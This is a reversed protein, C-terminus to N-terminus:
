VGNFELKMLKKSAFHLFLLVCITVSGLIALMVGIQYRIALDPAVGALIQGTMMGPLMVIGMSLMSTITPLIATTLAADVSQKVAAGGSAGLMLSQEIRARSQGFDKLLANMSLAVGTMSNGVVMGAISVFYRTDYWPQVGVVLWLFYLMVVSCGACMAITVPRRLLTRMEKPARRVVTVIAFAMMGAYICLTLWINTHAFALTLLYGAILLQLTMRITAIVLQKSQDIKRIKFIILLVVVFVYAALLQWLTIEVSGM